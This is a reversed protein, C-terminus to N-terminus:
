DSVEREDQNITEKETVHGRTTQLHSAVKKKSQVGIPLKYYAEPPSLTMKFPSLLPSRSRNQEM